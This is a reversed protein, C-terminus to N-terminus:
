KEHHVMELTMEVIMTWSWREKAIMAVMGTSASFSAMWAGPSGILAMIRMQTGSDLFSIINPKGHKDMGQVTSPQTLDQAKRKWPIHM